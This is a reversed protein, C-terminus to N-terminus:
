FLFICNISWTAEDGYHWITPQFSKTGRVTGWEEQRSVKTGALNTLKNTGSHAAFM